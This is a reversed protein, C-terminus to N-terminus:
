KLLMWLANYSICICCPTHLICVRLFPRIALSNDSAFTRLRGRHFLSSTLYSHNSQSIRSRSSLLLYYIPHLVIPRRLFCTANPGGLLQRADPTSPKCFPRTSSEISRGIPSYDVTAAKEGGVPQRAPRCRYKKAVRRVCSFLRRIAGYRVNLGM